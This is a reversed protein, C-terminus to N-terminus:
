QRVLNLVEDFQIEGNILRNEIENITAITPLGKLEIQSEFGRAILLYNIGKIITQRLLALSKQFRVYYRHVFFYETIPESDLSSSHIWGWRKTARFASFQLRTHYLSLDFGPTFQRTEIDEYQFQPMLTGADILHKIMRRHKVINGLEEPIQISLIRDKPIIVAIKNFDKRAWRPVHQINIMPLSTIHGIPLLDLYFKQYGTTDMPGDIIEYVARGWYALRSAATVIFNTVTDQLDERRYRETTKLAEILISEEASISPILSIRFGSNDHANVEMPLISTRVDDIFQKAYVSSYPSYQYGLDYRQQGSRNFYGISKRNAGIWNQDNVEM